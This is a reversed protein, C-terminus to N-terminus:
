ALRLGCAALGGTTLFSITRVSVVNPLPCTVRAAATNTTPIYTRLATYKLRCRHYCEPPFPHNRDPAAPAVGLLAPLSPPFPLCRGRHRVDVVSGVCWTSFKDYGNDVLYQTARFNFWPDFEHIM